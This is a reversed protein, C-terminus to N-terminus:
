GRGAPEAYQFNYLAIFIIFYFVKTQIVHHKKKNIVIVCAKGSLM